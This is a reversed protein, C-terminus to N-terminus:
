QITEIIQLQHLEGLVLALAASDIGEEATQQLCQQLQTEDMIESQAMLLKLVISAEANLLHTGGSGSHFVIMEHDLLRTQIAFNRCLRWQM